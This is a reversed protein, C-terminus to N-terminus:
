FEYGLSKIIKQLKEKTRNLKVRANVESIGLQLAIEKHSLGEMFYFILAKEVPNLHHTAAYFIDLQAQQQPHSSTDAVDPTHTYLIHKSHKKNNRLYTLATNLAVRYMWTAFQSNGTFSDYSRWLQVMMEQILDQRDTETDMYLRAVKHLIGAHQKILQLFAQEKEAM